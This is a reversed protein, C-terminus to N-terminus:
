FIEINGSEDVKTPEPKQAPEKKAPKAPPKADPVEEVTVREITAAEGLNDMAMDAIDDALAENSPRDEPLGDERENYLAAALEEKVDAYPRCFAKIATKEIMPIEDKVWTTPNRKREDESLKLWDQYSKSHNDRINFIYSLPYFEAEKGGNLKVVQVWCGVPKGREGIFIPHSVEGTSRDIRVADQEKEYVVGWKLDQFIPKEGGCLLAHFGQRKIQFQVEKIWTETKNRKVKRSYPVAYAHKDLELGTRLCDDILMYVSVRGEHSQFCEILKDNKVISAVTRALFQNQKEPNAHQLSECARKMLRPKYADIMRMLSGETPVLSEIPSVEKSENPM